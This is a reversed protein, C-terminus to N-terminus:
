LGFRTKTSNYNQTIEQTSLARNYIRASFVKGTWFEGFNNVQQGIRLYTSGM